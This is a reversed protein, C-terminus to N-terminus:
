RGDALPLLKKPCALGYTIKKSILEARLSQLPNCIFSVFLEKYRNRNVNRRKGAQHIVVVGIHREHANAIVSM